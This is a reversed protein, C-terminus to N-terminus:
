PCYSPFTTTSAKCDDFRKKAPLTYVRTSGSPEVWPWTYNGFFAPKSALYLSSPLQSTPAV